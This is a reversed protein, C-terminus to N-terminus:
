ALLPTVSMQRRSEDYSDLRAHTINNTLVRPHICQVRIYNDTYGGNMFGDENVGAIHEWLVDLTQGAFRQAFSMEAQTAITHLRASRERKADEGIHNRMRAAATGPRKSYRFIHMGAFDMERIFAESIAFEEDTEGPFGVIVDTTICVGPIRDRAAQM